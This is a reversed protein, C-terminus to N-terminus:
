GVRALTLELAAGGGAERLERLRAAGLTRALEAVVREHAAADEGYRAVGLEDFIAESRGTLRAAQEPDGDGLALEALLSLVYGLVERYGLRLALDLAEAALSRSQDVRGLALKVRALNYVSVSLGESDEIARQLEIVHLGEEEAAAWNGREAFISALNGRAAAERVTHGQAAFAAASERYNAEATDFDGEALAVAGLEAVCRAAEEEDDLRRFIDLAKAWEARATTLDGRRFAFAAGHFLAEAHLPPRGDSDAIAREFLRRGEALAGRVAWYLRMGAAIRVETEVDGAEAAGDLAARLNEHERDYEVLAAETKGSALEPQLREALARFWAAHRRRADAEEGGARLRQLAYERITELLVLRPAPAGGVRRVLGHAVLAAVLGLGGAGLVAEAAELPAGGSFVALRALARRQEEDILGYSWDLTARLTQQRPPLDRAGEVLIELADGLRRELEEPSLTRTWVAALELALPLGDLRRCIAGVAAANEDTLAFASDVARARALFLRVADADAVEDLAASAPPVALPPVTYLHEGSLRLPARSTALVRLRSTGALLAAVPVVDPLLQELNDLVLLLPQAGVAGVAAAVADDSEDAGLAQAIGRALADADGATALDVFVAGGALRPALEAAAAIALRTKGSGGAGLLTVLRVDGRALLGAVAAVELARGVLPTPPAPIRAVGRAAAEPAALSADHRLVARELERLEPGPEIGLEEAFVLRTDRYADLAEKQRGARYLAVIRQAHFRERYAHERALTELEPLLREHRGLALEAENRLELAQLRLEELEGARRAVPEGALDALPPGDFLALAAALDDAAVAADGVALAGRGREVLRECRDADLEGPELCIGYGGGHTAIRDGGLTKRLGHVYVQLSRAASQPAAEGWVADVLADRPVVSGRALLLEALLARQKPAGLPLPRGGALASLPGLVRFEIAVGM